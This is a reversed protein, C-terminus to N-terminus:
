YKTAHQIPVNLIIRLCSIVEARIRLDRHTFSKIWVHGFSCSPVELRQSPKPDKERWRGGACYYFVVVAPGVGVVKVINQRFNLVWYTPGATASAAAVCRDM